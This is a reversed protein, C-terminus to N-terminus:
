SLSMGSDFSSNFSSNFYSVEEYFIGCCFTFYYSIVCYEYFFFSSFIDSSGIEFGLFIISLM